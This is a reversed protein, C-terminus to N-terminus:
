EDAKGEAGAELISEMRAMAQKVSPIGGCLVSRSNPGQSLIEVSHATSRNRWDSKLEVHYEAGCVKYVAAWNDFIQRYYDPQRFRKPIFGHKNRM